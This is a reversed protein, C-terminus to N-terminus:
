TIRGYICTTSAVVDKDTVPQFRLQVIEDSTTHNCLVYLNIIVARTFLKNFGKAEALKM